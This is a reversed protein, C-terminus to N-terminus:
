EWERGGHEKFYSIIIDIDEESVHPYSNLMEEKDDPRWGAGYLIAAETYHDKM